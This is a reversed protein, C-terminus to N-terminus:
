TCLKAPSHVRHMCLIVSRNVVSDIESPGIWSRFRYRKTIFEAVTKTSGRPRFAYTQILGRLKGTNHLVHNNTCQKILVSSHPFQFKLSSPTPSSGLGPPTQPCVELHTGISQSHKSSFFSQWVIAFMFVSGAHAGPVHVNVPCLQQWQTSM